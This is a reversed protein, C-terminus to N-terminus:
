CFPPAFLCGGVEAGSPTAAAFAFVLLGFFFLLATVLMLLFTGFGTEPLEDNVAAPLAVSFMGGISLLLTIGSLVLGWGVVDSTLEFQQVLTLEVLAVATTITTFHKFFEFCLKAAERNHENRKDEAVL